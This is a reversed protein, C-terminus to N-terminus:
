AHPKIDHTEFRLSSHHEMCDPSSNRFKNCLLGVASTIGPTNSCTADKKLRNEPAHGKM